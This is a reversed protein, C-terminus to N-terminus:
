KTVIHVGLGGETVVDVFVFPHNFLQRVWALLFEVLTWCGYSEVGLLNQDSSSAWRGLLVSPNEVSLLVVDDSLSEHILAPVCVGDGHASSGDKHKTTEWALLSQVWNLLIVDSFVFPSDHCGHLVFSMVQRSTGDVILEDVSESAEEAACFLFYIVWNLDILNIAIDPGDQSDSHLIRKPSTASQWYTWCLDDEYSTLVGVSVTLDVQEVHLRLSPLLKMVHVLESDRMFGEEM